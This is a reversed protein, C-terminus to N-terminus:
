HHRHEPMVELDHRTWLTMAHVKGAEDRM